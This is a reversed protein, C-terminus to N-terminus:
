DYKTAIPQVMKNCRSANGNEPNGKLEEQKIEGTQNMVNSQSVRKISSTVLPKRIANLNFYNKQQKTFFYVMEHSKTWRDTVSEPMHNRKFWVNENRLIWGHVIMEWAFRSPIMCLSKPKIVAHKKMSVPATPSAEGIKRNPCINQSIERGQKGSDQGSGMYSDGLNVFCNGEDKLKLKIDDFLALLHKLYLEPTPELGLQGQWAGCLLCFGTTVKSKHITTTSSGRGTAGTQHYEKEITIDDWKHKCDPLGDFIILDTKYDRLGWYPPSTFVCDISKDQLTKILEFSNGIRIDIM